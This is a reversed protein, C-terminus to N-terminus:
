ARKLTITGRLKQLAAEIAENSTQPLTRAEEDGGTLDPGRTHGTGVPVWHKSVQEVRVTSGEVPGPPHTNAVTNGDINGMIGGYDGGNSISGSRSSTDERFGTFQQLGLNGGTKLSSLSLDTKPSPATLNNNGRQGGDAANASVSHLLESPTAGIVPTSAPPTPHLMRSQATNFSESSSAARRELSRRAAEISWMYDERSITSEPCDQVLPSQPKQHSDYGLGDAAPWIGNTGHYAQVPSGRERKSSNKRMSTSNGLGMVRVPQNYPSEPSTTSLATTSVFRGSGSGAREGIFGHSINSRHSSHYTAPTSTGGDSSDSSDNDSNEPDRNRGANSSATQAGSDLKLGRTNSILFHGAVARLNTNNDNTPNPLDLRSIRGNSHFPMLGDNGKKLRGYSEFKRWICIVAAVAVLVTIVIAAIIGPPLGGSSSPSQSDSASYASSSIISSDSTATPSTAAAAAAATSTLVAFETSATTAVAVTAALTTSTTGIVDIITSSAPCASFQSTCELSQYTISTPTVFAIGAAFSAASVPFSLLPSSLAVPCSYISTSGFSESCDAAAGLVAASMVVGSHFEVVLAATAATSASASTAYTVVSVNLWTYGLLPESTTSLSACCSAAGSSEATTTAMAGMVRTEGEHGGVVFRVKAEEVTGDRRVHRYLCSTGFPCTGEGQNYHKCDIRNMRRKYAELAAEKEATDAIWISSPIVIHTVQRCIPCAKANDMTENQRWHRICELCVCHECSLLGFRPDRKKLVKDFCVVCDMESSVKVGITGSGGGHDAFAGVGGNESGSRPLTIHARNACEELHKDRLNALYPHLCYKQCRPCKLGHTYRCKDGFRCLGNYAFPCLEDNGDGDAADDYKEIRNGAIGSHLIAASSASIPKVVAAPVNTKAIVSYPTYGQQKPQESPPKVAFSLTSALQPASAEAQANATIGGASIAYSMYKSTESEEIDSHDTLDFDNINLSTDFLDFADLDDSARDVDTAFGNSRGNNVNHIPSTPTGPTSAVPLSLSHLRQEPSPLRDEVAYDSAWANPSSHYFRSVSALSNATSSSSLLFDSHSPPLTPDFADYFDVPRGNSGARVTADPMPVPMPLSRLTAPPTSIPSATRTPDPAAAQNLSLSLTPVAVIPLRAPLEAAVAKSTSATKVGANPLAHSLACKSGFRCTGQLYFSCVRPQKGASGSISATPDSPNAPVHLFTCSTGNRCKGQQYFLCVKRSM